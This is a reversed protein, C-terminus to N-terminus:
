ADYSPHSLPLHARANVLDAKYEYPPQPCGAKYFDLAQHWRVFSSTYMKGGVEIRVEKPAPLRAALLHDERVALYEVGAITQLSAMGLAFIVREGIHVERRHARLPSSLAAVTGENPLPAVDIADIFGNKGYRVKRIRGEIEADVVDAAWMPMLLVYGALAHPTEIFHSHAWKDTPLLKVKCIVDSYPVLYVGPSVEASDSLCAPDFHITDGVAVRETIDACTRPVPQEVYGDSRLIQRGDPGVRPKGRGDLVVKLKPVLRTHPGACLMMDETLREPVALVLGQRVPIPVEDTEIDIEEGAKLRAGMEAWDDSGSPLVLRSKGPTHQQVFREPVAVLLYNDAPKWTSADM